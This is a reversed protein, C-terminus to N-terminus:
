KELRSKIYDIQDKQEKLAQILLPVIKSYVITLYNEGSKSHGHKNIDFPALKVVEPLVQKVEQAILGIQTDSNYGIKEALLNTNYYVGRLKDLKWLSNEIPGLINKLRSDSFASTIDGTARVEGTPGAATNVGLAAVQTVAPGIAGQYGQPGQFGAPGTAGQPGQAGAVGQAGAM